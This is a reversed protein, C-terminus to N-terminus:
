RRPRCGSRLRNRQEPASRWLRLPLAARAVVTLQSLWFAVLWALASDMFGYSHLGVGLMNVGFWSAATICNGFVALAMIGSPGALKAWRAHLILANWLVIVLAGNEKPDWGWFRGWAQDAWIGGTVTGVLSFLTAFCITGYVMRSLSEATAADLSRTLTGRLIYVLALTGAVFCAGYGMTITVVHVTLWFNSDLVARMMELTDGGFSLHHAVILSLFGLLGAVVGGVGNRHHRELLLALGAGVWGVFLASSYLNTVPPRAEVVMRAAIGTTTLLWAVSGISLACRSLVVPWALWSAFALLLALVYLAAAWYFPEARNFLFELNLRARQTPSLSASATDRLQAVAANFVSSDNESWARGLAAFDGQAASELSHRLEIYRFLRVGLRLLEREYATRRAPEIAEAERARRMLEAFQPQLQRFSFRVGRDGDAVSLRLLALVEGNDIRFTPYTDALAPRFCVDLLWREPPVTEDAATRVRQRNQLLLLSTRAVTDLPKLRGGHLLPLHAFGATDFTDTSHPSVVACAVLLLALAAAALPVRRQWVPGRVPAVTQSQAAASSGPYVNGAGARRSLFGSLTISFHYLLGIGALLSALYPILRGPNSVVQYTVAGPAFSAQYFALGQHRLPRNMRIDVERPPTGDSPSLRLRSSYDRVIETGPHAESRMSLLTVSFETFARTEGPRLTLSAESSLLGAVFEGVLLLALGAHALHLGLHRWTPALRHFQACLLNLLLAGGVLYGGPFVPIPTTSGSPTLTVLFTRIYKRQAAWVGLNIQDLTTLVVLIIALALLAVTLRLSALSAVAARPLVRPRPM